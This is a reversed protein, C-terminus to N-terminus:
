IIRSYHARQQLVLRTRILTDSTHTSESFAHLSGRPGPKLLCYICLASQCHTLKNFVSPVVTGTVIMHNVFVVSMVTSYSLLVHAIIALQQKNLM